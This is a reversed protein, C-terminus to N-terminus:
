GFYAEANQNYVILTRALNQVPTDGYTFAIGCFDLVSCSISSGGYSVEMKQDFDVADIGSVEIYYVKVGENVVYKLTAAHGNVEKPAAPKGTAAATDLYFRLRADKTCAFSVSKFKVAGSNNVSHEAYCYAADIQNKVATSFDATTIATTEYDAFVGQAAYGYAIITNCLTKLAAAKEATGAYEALADDDMAIINDCYTKSSYHLTDLVDSAENLIKIETLEGMQAPAQSVTIKVRGGELMSAPINDLYVSKTELEQRENESISNYTYEIEYAGEYAQYDVYYNSTIDKGITLSVGNNAGLPEVTYKGQADPTTVPTFGEACYKEPVVVNFTGGSINVQSGITSSLVLNKKAPVTFDGGTITITSNTDQKAAGIVGNTKVCNSTFSGSEIVVTTNDVDAWVAYYNNAAVDCNKIVVNQAKWASIGGTVDLNELTINSSAVTQTQELYGAEKGYVTIAYDRYQDDSLGVFSGNKITADNGFWLVGNTYTTITHGDLDITLGSIDLYHGARKAYTETFDIDDLLKVTDGENAAAIAEELTAYQTGNVEAVPQMKKTATFTATYTVDGTVDTVAPSWGAFTYTYQSDEAKTPTEGDYTPTTGAAVDTDTELVTGDENQWTVTHLSTLYITNRITPWQSGKSFESVICKQTTTYYRDPEISSADPVEVSKVLEGDLYVKLVHGSFEDGRKVLPFRITEDKDVVDGERLYLGVVQKDFQATYTIDGTVATVEPSWGSFFYMYKEDTAKTPTAGDYTPTTGEAVDTDTELTTGDANQWTVTYTNPEIVFTISSIGQIFLDGTLSVSESPTGNWKLINEDETWNCECYIDNAEIEISTFKGTTSSFVLTTGDNTELYGKGFYSIEGESKTLTIGNATDSYSSEESVKDGIYDNILSANWTVIKSSSEADPVTIATNATPTGSVTVAKESTREVTVGNLTYAEFEPFTADALATYTVTDMAGPLYSQTSLGGSSKANAGGTLTVTPNNLNGEFYVRVASIDVNDWSSITVQQANINSFTADGDFTGASASLTNKDDVRSYTLVVKTITEGKRANITMPHIDNITLASEGVLNDASVSYHTGSIPSQGYVLSITESVEDAAFATFPMVSLLMVAVLLVSLTKKLKM